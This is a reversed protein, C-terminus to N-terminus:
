RLGGVCQEHCPLPALQEEVWRGVPNDGTALYHAYLAHLCKVREPMGGQTPDGEIPGGPLRDRMALYRDSAKRYVDAFAPDERLRDTLDSMVGTAELGGIRSAALPACLWFMTPFPKGEADRPDCRLVAPLGRACRVAVAARAKTPRGILEEILAREAEDAYPKGLQAAYPDASSAADDPRLLEGM